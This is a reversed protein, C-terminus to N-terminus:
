PNALDEVFEIEVEIAALVFAAGDSRPAIERGLYTVQAVKGGMRPGDRFMARKMDRIAAHAALNPHLPDCTLYAFLLYKQGNKIQTRVTVSAPNDNGEIVSICPIQDADIKDGGRGQYVTSGIDTEAGQDKTLTILRAVVEAAVDESRTLTAM